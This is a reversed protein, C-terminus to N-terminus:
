GAGPLAESETTSAVKKIAKRGAKKGASGAEDRREKFAEYKGKFVYLYDLLAEVFDLTEEADERTVAAKDAHAGQNGVDRCLDAWDYLRKDIIGDDRMLKLRPFLDGKAYGQDVAIGELVRRAMVAAAKYHKAEICERAEQHDERLLRPVAGSLRRAQRPFMRYYDDWGDPPFQQESYYEQVYLAAGL